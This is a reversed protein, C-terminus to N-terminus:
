VVSKRDQLSGDSYRKTKQAFWKALSRAGEDFKGQWQRSLDDLADQLENAPAKTGDQALGTAKYRASLWYVISSQMDCILRKLRKRYEAEIGSNPHIPPLTIDNDGRQATITM